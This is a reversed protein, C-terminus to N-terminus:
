KEIKHKFVSIEADFGRLYFLSFNSFAGYRKISAVKM